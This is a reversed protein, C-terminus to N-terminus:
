KRSWDHVTICSIVQEPDEELACCTGCFSVGRALQGEPYKMEDGGDYELPQQEQISRM